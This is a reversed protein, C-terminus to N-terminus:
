AIAAITKKSLTAEAAERGSLRKEKKQCESKIMTQKVTHSSHMLGATRCNKKM